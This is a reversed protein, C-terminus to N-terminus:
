HCCINGNVTISPQDGVERRMLYWCYVLKSKAKPSFAYAVLIETRYLKSFAIYTFVSRHIM